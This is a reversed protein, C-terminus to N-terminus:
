LRGTRVPIYIGRSRRGRSDGQVQDTRFTVGPKGYESPKTRSSSRDHAFPQQPGVHFDTTLPNSIQEKIDKGDDLKKKADKSAKWNILFQRSLENIQKGDLDELIKCATILRDRYKPKVCVPNNNLDLLRLQSWQSFVTELEKIDQLQNDTAYLHTLKQLPALDWIEDINNKSINLICLTESLRSISRPDFILKEGRPLKQGEVHLEKLSKLEDLGEVVTIINGGLFLKSLKHLSSLNEICSINNNQMYLHTLNSAFGLNCIQSIQNDYLYLVTLNRCMSLDDIDEISKNSFNLHTLKKLYQQLSESRCAKSYNSSKSILHVTLRVM